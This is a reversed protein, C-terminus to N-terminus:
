AEIFQGFACSSMWRGGCCLYGYKQELNGGLNSLADQVLKCGLMLLQFPCSYTQAFLFDVEYVFM